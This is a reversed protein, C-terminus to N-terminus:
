VPLVVLTVALYLWPLRGIPERALFLSDRATELLSHAAVMVGLLVSLQVARRGGPAQGTLAPSMRPFAAAIRRPERGAAPSREERPPHGRGELRGGAVGPCAARQLRRLRAHSPRAQSGGLDVGR